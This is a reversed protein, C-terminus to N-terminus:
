FLVASDMMINCTKNSTLSKSMNVFMPTKSRKDTDWFSLTRDVVLRKEVFTINRKQAVELFNGLGISVERSAVQGTTINVLEDSVTDLDFPNQSEAVYEVIKIVDQEDRAMRTNSHETHNKATTQKSNQCVAYQATIHRTAMWRTLAGKRLTFGIVGGQSKGERNITQELAQDTAVANFRRSSLRVVFGGDRLYQYFKPQKQQLTVMDNLYGPLYRVYNGRDAARCWPITECVAILHLEFMGDREARLLRLLTGVGQMFTELYAFTASQMRGAATFERQLAHLTAIHESELQKFLLRDSERRDGSAFAQQIDRVLKDMDNRRLDTQDRQQMWAWFAEQYLRYLAELMLKMGRNGRSVQKEELMLRATAPAYVDSDVRMSLLGGDGYLKGISAIYAMNLQMGGLRMTVKGDM